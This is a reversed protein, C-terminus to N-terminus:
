RGKAASGAAGAEPEDDGGTPDLGHDLADWLARESAPEAAAADRRAAPALYRQAAGPAASAARMLLVAAVLTLMAAVLTVVAGVYQRGSAVLAIVPVNALQAARVALDPVVWQSIALYGLAASVVAMLGALLRLPWGRVALSAVATALLLLALPLLATSWQAGSLAVTKPHGLGDASTISVWTMRGAVWLAVAAIVLLLQAMRMAYNRQPGSPPPADSM